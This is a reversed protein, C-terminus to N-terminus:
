SLQEGLPLQFQILTGTGAQSRVSCQGGLKALRQQMNALGNSGPANKSADFGKGNDAVTINLQGSAVGMTIRVETAGSHRVANNLAERFALFVGHRLRSDMPMDPFSEAVQLRCAIGGLNLFRQAFLSYYSALSAVSDYKPNVAWVIEDLTSVLSRSVQTLQELYRNKTEAPLSETRALSGLM